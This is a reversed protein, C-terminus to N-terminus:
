WRKARNKTVVREELLTEPNKAALHTAAYVLFNRVTNIHDNSCTKM